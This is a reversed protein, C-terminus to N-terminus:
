EKLIQERYRDAAIKWRGGEKVFPITEWEGVLANKVELTATDGEIKENRMEINVTMAKAPDIMKKMNEEVSINQRRAEEDFEKLSNRSFADRLKAVDMERGAEVYNKMTQAPTAGEQPASGCGSAFLM